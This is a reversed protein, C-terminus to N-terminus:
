AAIRGCIVGAWCHHMGAGLMAAVGTQDCVNLRAKDRRACAEWGHKRLEFDTDPMGQEQELRKVVRGKMAIVRAWSRQIDMAQFYDDESRTCFLEDHADFGSRLSKQGPQV